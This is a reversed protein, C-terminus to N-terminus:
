TIRRRTMYNWLMNAALLLGAPILQNEGAVPTQTFGSLAVLLFAVIFTGYAAYLSGSQTSQSFRTAGVTLIGYLAFLWMNIYLHNTMENPITFLVDVPTLTENGPLPYYMETM